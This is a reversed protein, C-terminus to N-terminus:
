WREATREIELAGEWPRCLEKAREPAGLTWVQYDEPRLLVPMRDHVEGAPLDADTMVMSYCRGWEESDRWIGACAFLNADPVSLWTRTKGGKPGEAEAWASLPILCRRQEFSDRWFFSGLKDTRANNVPRPKLPEGTKKSKMALPFGWTMSVLAGDAVVLGSYGPYIETGVNAANESRAAFWKAVEDTTKTMRYLNCM